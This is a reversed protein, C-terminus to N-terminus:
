KNDRLLDFLMRGAAYLGLALGLVIGLLLFLPHTGTKGDLWKGVFIGLLIPIAISWGIGTFRVANILMRRDRDERNSM